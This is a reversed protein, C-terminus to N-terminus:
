NCHEQYEAETMRVGFSVDGAAFVFAGLELPKYCMPEFLLNVDRKHQSPQWALAVILGAVTLLKKM